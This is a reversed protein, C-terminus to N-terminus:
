QTLRQRMRSTCSCPATGGPRGARWPSTCARTPRTPPGGAATPAKGELIAQLEKFRQPYSHREALHARTKLVAEWYVEPRRMMDRLRGAVGGGPALPRAAPGYVAEVHNGPLMLLPITDACFTEFTRNTVLGLHNYLPRHFVPSFRAQGVLDIVQDFPIADSTQVDLRAT